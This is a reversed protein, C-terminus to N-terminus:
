AAKRSYFKLLGGLRERTRISQTWLAEQSVLPMMLMHRKGSSATGKPTCYRPDFHPSVLPPSHQPKSTFELSVALELKKDMRTQPLDVGESVEFVV